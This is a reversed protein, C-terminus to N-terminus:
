TTPLLGPSRQPTCSRRRAPRGGGALLRTPLGRLLLRDGIAAGAAAGIAPAAAAGAPERGAGLLQRSPARSLAPPPACGCCARASPATGPRRRRGPAGGVAEARRRGAPEQGRQQKAQRKQVSLTGRSGAHSLLRSRQHAMGADSVAAAAAAAAERLRHGPQHRRRAGAARHQVDAHRVAAHAHLVNQAAHGLRVGAFTPPRRLVRTPVATRARRPHSEDSSIKLAAAASIGHRSSACRVRSGAAGRRAGGRRPAPRRGAPVIEM